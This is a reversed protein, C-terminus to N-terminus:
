KYHGYIQPNRYQVRKGERKVVLNQPFHLGHRGCRPCNAMVFGHRHNPLDQLHACGKACCGVIM